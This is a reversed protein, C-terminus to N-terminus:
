AEAAARLDEVSAVGDVRRGRFFATPTARVGARQALRRHHQLRQLYRPERRAREQVATSVGAEGAVAALIARDGINRDEILYAEFLRRHLRYFVEPGEEKAAEALLLAQRSNTTRHQPGFVVGDERALQRLSEQLGHWQADSYGLAAVPQGQPPNEPHIELGCWNVKLDHRDRLRELRLFGLYCFPCIYDSFVTVLVQPKAGMTM